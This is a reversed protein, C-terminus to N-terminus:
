VEVSNKVSNAGHRYCELKQYFNMGELYTVKSTVLFNGSIDQMGSVEPMTLECLAIDLLNSEVLYATNFEVGFSFLNSLRRNQYLATEYHSSVNGVDIPAFSVKAQPVSDKLTKNMSLVRSNRKVNVQSVIQDTTAIMSQQITTDQYGGVSNFFGSKSLLKQDTVPLANAYNGKNSFVEVARRSNFDSVNILRVTKDATVGLQVCSENDVWSREAVQRAFECYRTNYPMWLQSESTTVGHFNLGCANAIQKIAESAAGNIAKPTSAMWYLPVNLIASIHYQTGGEGGPIAQHNFRRFEYTKKRGHVGITIKIIAGDVLLNNQAIFKTADILRLNLVPVYARVSEVIHLYQLQNLKDLPFEVGNILIQLYLRDRINLAM